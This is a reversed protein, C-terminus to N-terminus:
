LGLTLQSPGQARGARRRPRGAGDRGELPAPDRPAPPAAVLTGPADGAPRSLWAALDSARWAIRNPSIRVSRPFDGSKQLRWITTQSLGTIARVAPWSLLSDTSVAVPDPKPQDTM